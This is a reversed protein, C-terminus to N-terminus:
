YELKLGPRKWRTKALRGSGSLCIWADMMDDGIDPFTKKGGYYDYVVRAASPADPDIIRNTPEGAVRLTVDAIATM